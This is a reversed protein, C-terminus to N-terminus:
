ENVLSNVNIQKFSMSGNITTNEGRIVYRSAGYLPADNGFPTLYIDPLNRVLPQLESHLRTLFNDIMAPMEGGIAIIEPDILAIINAFGYALFRILRDENGRLKEKDELLQRIGFHSEFFGQKVGEAGNKSITNPDVIFHGIEGAAFHAGRYPNGDILLAAGIGHSLHVYVMTETLAQRRWAEGMVALRVDNEVFVAYDNFFLSFHDKIPEKEWGFEPADSVYGREDVVGPVSIGIGLIKENVGKVSGILAKMRASVLACLDKASIHCTAFDESLCIKGTLNSVRMRIKDHNMQIAGIYRADPNLKFLQPPKGGQSIGGGAEQLWGEELLEKVVSSVTPLSLGSLDRLETRSTTECQELLRLITQRNLLRLLNPTAPVATKKL